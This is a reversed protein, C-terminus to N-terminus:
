WHYGLTLGGIHNTTNNGYAGIYHVALTWDENGVFLGANVTGLYRDDDVEARVSEGGVHSVSEISRDTLLARVGLALEPRVQVNSHTEFAQSWKIRATGYLDSQTNSEFERKHGTSQFTLDFDGTRGYVWAAGLEPTWTGASETVFNKGLRLEAFLSLDDFSDRATESMTRYTLDSDAYAGTLAGRLYVDQMPYWLMHWGLAVADSTANQRGGFAEFSTHEAAFHIGHEFQSNARTTFGLMVGNTDIDANDVLRLDSRSFYPRVFVNKQQEVKLPEFMEGFRFGRDRSLRNTYIAMIEGADQEAEYTFELQMNETLGDEGILTVKWAEDDMAFQNQNVKGQLQDPSRLEFLGSHDNMNSVLKMVTNSKLDEPVSFILQTQDSVVYTGWKSIGDVAAFANEGATLRFRKINATVDGTIGVLRSFGKKDIWGINEIDGILSGSSAEIRFVQTYNGSLTINGTNEILFTAPTTSNSSQFGRFTFAGSFWENSESSIAISKQNNFVSRESFCSHYLVGSRSDSLFQAEVIGSNIFHQNNFTKNEFQIASNELFISGENRIIINKKTKFNIFKEGFGILDSNQINIQGYNNVNMEIDTSPIYNGGTYPTTSIVIWPKDKVNLINDTENNATLVESTGKQLVWEIQEANVSDSFM